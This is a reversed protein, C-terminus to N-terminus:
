TANMKAYLSRRIAASFRNTEKCELVVATGPSDLSPERLINVLAYFAPLVVVDRHTYFCHRRKFYWVAQDETEKLCIV